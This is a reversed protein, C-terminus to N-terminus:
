TSAGIRNGVINDVSSVGKTGYVADMPVQPTGWALVWTEQSHDYAWITHALAGGFIWLVERCGDFVEATQMESSPSPKNDENYDCYDEWYPFGNGEGLFRWALSDSNFHWLDNTGDGSFLFADEEHSWKTWTFRSSPYNSEDFVGQVGKVSVSTYILPGHVWTWELTSINFHWISSSALTSNQGCAFWLKNEYTWCTENEARIGPTNNPSPIGKVGAVEIDETLESGTLWVWENMSISYKWVNTRFGLGYGGYIYIGDNGDYWM